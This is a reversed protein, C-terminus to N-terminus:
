TKVSWMIVIRQDALPMGSVRGASLVAALAVAATGQIDDNFTCLRDHYCDLLRHANPLAFDEWQLLIHPWRREVASVFAEVFDDYDKGRVRHHQWGIYIPDKLLAEYSGYSRAINFRTATEAARRADRSAIAAIAGRESALIAPIVRKVGINACSLIGWQLRRDSNM